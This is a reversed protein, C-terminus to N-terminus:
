TRPGRRGLSSGAPVALHLRPIAGQRTTEVRVGERRALLLGLVAAGLIAGVGGMAISARPSVEEALWGILLSGIPGGGMFCLLYLAMVRGRMALSTGMQVAANCATTFIITAVGTPILMLAFTAYSPMLSASLELIGFALASVLLVRLRPRTRRRTSILAGSLSGVALMTTLLGYSGADTHFVGKAMLASTVQFNLGLTAVVFLLAMPLMLDRRARVYRMAEMLQGKARPQPKVHQLESTRMAMLAALPGLCSVTNVLFLPGEGIVSILVGAIAPGVIRALNFTASNLSVANSVDERGVMEVVFVQRAPNDMTTIVGLALALLYVHWVQVHNTVILLGLILSAIMTATQTLLLLKRKDYRDAIVGGWLGFVLTPAFQLASVLGLATGSNHTLGLVLWDQAVRQMWTGTNSVVQGSAFLRYNRVRLSRFMSGKAAEAAEEPTRDDHRHRLQPLHPLHPLHLQPLHFHPLHLHPRHHTRRDAPAATTKDLGAGTPVSSSSIVAAAV